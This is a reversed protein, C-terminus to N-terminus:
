DTPVFESGADGILADVLQGFDDFFFERGMHEWRCKNGAGTLGARTTKQCRKRSRKKVGDIKAHELTTEIKAM